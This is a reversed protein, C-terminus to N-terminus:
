GLAIALAVANGAPEYQTGDVSANVFVTGNYVKMLGDTSNYYFDGATLPDGNLDTTPDTASAGIYFSEINDLSAQAATASAAAETAWYKASYDTGDVPGALYTAWDKSSGSTGRTQTGIAWEKASYDSADVTDATYTAWDKSSGTTGRTQTGVAYEKASYETTDVTDSTKTAWEKAAGSAATDTVGTGGIAWAKSSYGETAVAEGDIKQAWNESEDAFNSAKTIHVNLAVIDLTNGANDTLNGINIIDNGNIDLDASLSNPTSGDLSLTNSFADKLAEFNANLTTTSAYGSSISTITPLKAM